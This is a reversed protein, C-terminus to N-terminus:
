RSELRCWLFTHPGLMFRWTSSTTLGSTPCSTPPHSVPRPSRSVRRITPTWWEDCSGFTPTPRPCNECSTGEREFLFPVTDARFDDVGLDLWDYFARVPVEYLVLDRYWVEM